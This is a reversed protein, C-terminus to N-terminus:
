KSQPWHPWSFEMSHSYVHPFSEWPLSDDIGLELKLIHVLIDRLNGVHDMTVEIADGHVVDNRLKALSRFAKVSGEEIGKRSAYFGFREANTSQQLANAVRGLNENNYKEKLQKRIEAFRERREVVVPLPGHKSAFTSIITEIGIFFSLFRDLNVEATFGREFWRLALLISRSEPGERMLKPLLSDLLVLEGADVTRQFAVKVPVDLRCIQEQGTVIYSESSQVEGAAQHGMVLAVLGRTAFAQFEADTPTAGPAIIEIFRGTKVVTSQSAGELRDENESRVLRQFDSLEEVELDGSILRIRANGAFICVDFPWDAYDADIVLRHYVGFGPVHRVTFGQQASGLHSLRTDVRAARRREVEATGGRFPQGTWGTFHLGFGVSNGLEINLLSGSSDTLHDSEIERGNLDTRLSLALPVDSSWRVLGRRLDDLRILVEDGGM